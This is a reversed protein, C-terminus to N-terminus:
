PQARDRYLARANIQSRTEAALDAVLPGRPDRQDVLVGAVRELSAADAALEVDSRVPGGVPDLDPDLGLADAVGRALDVEGQHPTGAPLGRLGSSILAIAVRRRAAPGTDDPAYGLITTGSSDLYGGRGTSFSAPRPDTTPM